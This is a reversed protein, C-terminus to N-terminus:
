LTLSVIFSSVNLEQNSLQKFQKHLKNKSTPLKIWIKKSIVNVTFGAKEFLSLMEFFRIRNTYFGSTAFFDSEWILDSFRLNNLAGNFHDRLDVVHTSIGTPKLIRSLEKLTPLFEKKRIHELVAQSFIFDISNDPLQRLSHLGSTLYVARCSQMLYDFSSLDVKVNYGKELLFSCMSRYLIMNRCALDRADVLFIKKAGFARAILASFLTEGPGLEMCVYASLSKIISFHTEFVSYAYLPSKMAVNHTLPFVTWIKRQMPLRSLVMKIFIGGWWPIFQKVISLM